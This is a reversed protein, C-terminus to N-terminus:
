VGNYLISRNGLSRLATNLVDQAQIDIAMARKREATSMTLDGNTWMYQAQSTLAEYLIPRLEPVQAILNDQRSNYLSYRHIFNYIVFSVRRLFNQLVIDPNSCKGAALRYRVDIGSQVLAQETIYYKNTGEDYIMLDDSYPYLNQGTM